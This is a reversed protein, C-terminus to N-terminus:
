RGGLITISVNNNTFKRSSSSDSSVRRETFAPNKPAPLTAIESTLMSLTTAMAPRDIAFEEVCLLGVHICRLIEVEFSPESLVLTPDVLALANNENWLHWAHGLLRLSLEQDCISSNIKGSVIELLLVGSSFVDSKESLRGEIVYEPSM